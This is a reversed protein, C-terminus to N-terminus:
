MPPPTGGESPTVNYRGCHSCETYPEGDENRLVVYHHRGLLCVLKRAM